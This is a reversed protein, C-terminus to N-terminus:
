YFVLRQRLREEKKKQMAWRRERVKEAINSFNSFFPDTFCENMLKQLSSFLLFEILNYFIYM